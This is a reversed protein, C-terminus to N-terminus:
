SKPHIGHSKLWLQFAIVEPGPGGCVCVLEITEKNSLTQIVSSPLKQLTELSQQIHYPAYALLYAQATKKNTYDVAVVGDTQYAARLQKLAPRLLSM